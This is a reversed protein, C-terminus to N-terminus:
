CTSLVESRTVFRLCDIAFPVDSRMAVGLLNGLFLLLEEDRYDLNKPTLLYRGKNEGASASPCELLLPLAASQLEQAVLWM